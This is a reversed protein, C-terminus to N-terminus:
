SDFFQGNKWHGKGLGNGPGMGPGDDYGHGPATTGDHKDHGYGNGNAMTHKIDLIELEPKKWVKRM